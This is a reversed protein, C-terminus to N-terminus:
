RAIGISDAIWRAVEEFSLWAFYNKYDWDPYKELCWNEQLELRIEEIEYYNDDFFKHTDTYYVLGWVMWSICGYSLLDKFFWEVNEYDLAEDIVIKAIWSDTSYKHKKLQRIIENNNM